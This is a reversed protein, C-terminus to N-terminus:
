RKRYIVQHDMRIFLGAAHAEEPKTGQVLQCLYTKRKLTKKKKLTLYFDSDRLDEDSFRRRDYDREDDLVRVDVVVHFHRTTYAWTHIHWAM